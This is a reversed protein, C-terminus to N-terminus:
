ANDCNARFHSFSPMRGSRPTPPAELCVSAISGHHRRDQITALAKQWCKQISLPVIM